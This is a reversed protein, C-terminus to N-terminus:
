QKQGLPTKPLRVLKFYGIKGGIWKLFNCHDPYSVWYYLNQGLVLSKPQLSQHKYLHVVIKFIM